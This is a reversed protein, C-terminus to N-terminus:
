ADGYRIKGDADTSYNYVYEAANGDEFAILIKQPYTKGKRYRPEVTGASVDKHRDRIWMKKAERIKEPLVELGVSIIEFVEDRKSDMYAFVDATNEEKKQELKKTLEEDEQIAEKAKKWSVNNRKAAANVSQLELYDAVIKKKQKDTIKNAM